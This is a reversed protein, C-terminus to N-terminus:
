SSFVVEAVAKSLVPLLLPAFARAAEARLLLRKVGEPSRVRALRRLLGAHPALRRRQNLNLKFRFRLINVCTELVALLQDARAHEILLRRVRTSKTRALRRLFDINRRVREGVM